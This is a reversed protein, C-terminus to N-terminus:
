VNLFPVHVGAVKLIWSIIALPIVLQGLVLGGMLDLIWSVNKGFITLLCYHFCYAGATLNLVVISLLCGCSGLGIDRNRYSSGTRRM